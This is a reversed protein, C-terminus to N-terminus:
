RLEMGDEDTAWVAARFLQLGSQIIDSTDVAPFKAVLMLNAEDMCKGLTYVLEKFTHRKFYTKPEIPQSIDTPTDIPAIAEIKKTGEKVELKLSMGVSLGKIIAEAEEKSCYYNFWNKDVQLGFSEYQDNWESIKNLIGEVKVM